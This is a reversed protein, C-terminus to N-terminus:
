DGMSKPIHLLNRMLPFPETGKHSTGLNLGAFAFVLFIGHLEGFFFSNVHDFGHLVKNVFVGGIRFIYLASSFFPIIIKGFPVIKGGRILPIL